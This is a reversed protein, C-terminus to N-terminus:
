CSWWFQSRHVLVLPLSPRHSVLLGPSMVGLFGMPIYWLVRKPCGRWSVRPCGDWSSHTQKNHISLAFWIHPLLVVLVHEVHTRMSPEWTCVYAYSVDTYTMMSMGYKLMRWCVDACRVVRVRSCLMRWCMNASAYCVDAYTLMRWCVDACRVVRVRSCLMRWCVDAYTLMRWCVDAYTLVGCWEWVRAYWVDASTLLRMAYTM